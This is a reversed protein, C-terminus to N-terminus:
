RSIPIRYGEKVATRCCAGRFHVDKGAAAEAVVEAGEHIFVEQHDLAALKVEKEVGDLNRRRRATCNYFCSTDTKWIYNLM